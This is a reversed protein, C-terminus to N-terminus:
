RAAGPRRSRFAEVTRALGDRLATAPRWGLADAVRSPDLCSHRVDGERPDAFVPLVSAGTIAAIQRWLDNVSTGVGTAVNLVQGAGRDLALVNAETVDGVYTFDRLNEGDGFIVPRRGELAAAIFLSAVGAEGYPDQRPGYVNGYRLIVLAVGERRSIQQLDLEAAWKHAAYPSQPNPPTREDAPLRPANGYIAGGTSAFIVRSAGGEIAGRMVRISGVVNVLADHAPRAVSGPVSAHAAQHNVVDPREAAIVGEVGERTIDDEVLRARASVNARSGSSLNDLVVVEHGAEVYGDVVHSGVFGAGGTVVIKM